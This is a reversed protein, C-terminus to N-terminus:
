RGARRRRDVFAQMRKMRDKALADRERMVGVLEPYEEATLSYRVFWGGREVDMTFFGDSRRSDVLPYREPPAALESFVARDLEAVYRTGLIDIEADIDALEADLDLLALRKDEENLGLEALQPPDKRVHDGCFMARHFAIDREHFGKATAIVDSEVEEWRQLGSTELPTNLQVGMKLYDARVEPWRDGWHEELYTSVSPGSEVEVRATVAAAIPDLSTEADGVTAQISTAGRGEDPDNRAVLVYAVAGAALVLALLLKRM